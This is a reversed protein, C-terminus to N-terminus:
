FDTLSKLWYVDTIYRRKMIKTSVQGRPPTAPPVPSCLTSDALCAAFLPQMESVLWLPKARLTHTPDEPLPVPNEKNGAGRYCGRISCGPHASGFLVLPSLEQHGITSSAVTPHRSICGMLLWPLAWSIPSAQPLYGANQSAQAPGGM